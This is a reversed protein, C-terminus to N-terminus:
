GDALDENEIINQVRDLVKQKVATVDSISPHNLKIKTKCYRQIDQAQISRGVVLLARGRGARGTRGMRHVYYEDDQPVDYNFVTEIDNADNSQCCIPKNFKTRGNRFSNMVRDRQQQKVNWPGEAM